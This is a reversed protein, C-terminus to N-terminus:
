FDFGNNSADQAFQGPNDPLSTDFGGFEFGTAELRALDQDFQLHAVRNPDPDDGQYSSRGTLEQSSMIANYIARERMIRRDLAVSRKMAEWYGDNADELANVLWIAAPISIILIVAIVIIPM